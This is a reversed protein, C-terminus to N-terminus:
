QKQRRKLRGINYEIVRKLDLNTGIGYEYKEVVEVAEEGAAIKLFLHAARV